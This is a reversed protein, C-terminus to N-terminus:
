SLGLFDVSLSHSITQTMAGHWRTIIRDGTLLLIYIASSITYGRM